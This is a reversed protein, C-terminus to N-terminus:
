AEDKLEGVKKAAAKVFLDLHKNTLRVGQSGVPTIYDKAILQVAIALVLDSPPRHKTRALYRRAQDAVAQEMQLDTRRPEGRPVIIAYEGDRGAWQPDKVKATNVAQQPM